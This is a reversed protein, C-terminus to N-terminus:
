LDNPRNPKNNQINIQLFPLAFDCLNKKSQKIEGFRPTLHLAGVINTAFHANTNLRFTCLVTM